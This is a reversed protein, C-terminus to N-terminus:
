TCKWSVPLQFGGITTYADPIAQRYLSQHPQSRAGLSHLDSVHRYPSRPPHSAASSYAYPSSAGSYSISANGVVTPPPGVLHSPHYAGASNPHAFPHHAVHQCIQNQSEEGAKSYSKIFLINNDNLSFWFLAFNQDESYEVKVTTVM